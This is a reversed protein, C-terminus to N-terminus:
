HTKHGSRSPELNNPSQLTLCTVHPFWDCPSSIMLYLAAKLVKAPFPITRVLPGHHHSPLSQAASSRPYLSGRMMHNLRSINLCSWLYFRVPHQAAMATKKWGQGSSVACLQVGWSLLRASGPEATNQLIPLIGTAQPSPHPSLILSSSQSLSENGGWLSCAM